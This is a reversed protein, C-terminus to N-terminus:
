PYVLVYDEETWEEANKTAKQLEPCVRNFIFGVNEGDKFKIVFLPGGVILHMLDGPSQPARIIRVGAAQLRSPLIGLALQENDVPRRHHFVYQRGAEVHKPLPQQQETHLAVSQNAEVSNRQTSVYPGAGVFVFDSFVALMKSDAPSNKRACGLMLCTLVIAARLLSLSRHRPTTEM